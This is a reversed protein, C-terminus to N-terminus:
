VWRVWLNLIARISRTSIDAQWLYPSEKNMIWLKEQATFSFGPLKPWKLKVHPKIATEGDIKHKSPIVRNDDCHCDPVKVELLASPYIGSWWKDQYWSGPYTEPSIIKVSGYTSTMEEYRCHLGCYIISVIPATVTTTGPTDQIFIFNLFSNFFCTRSLHVSSPFFTDAYWLGSWIWNM